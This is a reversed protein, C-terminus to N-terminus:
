GDQEGWRKQEGRLFEEVDRVIRATDPLEGEPTASEGAYQEELKHVYLRLGENQSLLRSLTEDFYEGAARLDDLNLEIGLLACARGLLGHSVKPNAVTQVYMPAHGWLSVSEIGEEQCAMLLAGQISSPGQYDTLNINLERLRARLRESTAMGSIRPEVTHPITDFLSGLSVFMEVEFQRLLAMITRTYRRWRHPPEGALLMVFDHEANEDQRYFLDSTPYRLAQMAGGEILAMPRSTGFDYYPDPDITGLRRASLKAALYRLAGTAVEGADPWGGFAAVLYPRRLNPLERLILDRSEENM